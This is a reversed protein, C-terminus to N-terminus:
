KPQRGPLMFWLGLFLIFLSASVLLGLKMSNFIVRAILYVDLCLSVALPWMSLLLLRSALYVFRNSISFPDRQRHIAAPAMVLAVSIVVLVISVFHLIQEGSSLKESFGQSFVAILQFGFLAQIGPLVMRCEELLHTASSDLSLEESKSVKRMTEYFGRKKLRAFVIGSKRHFLAKPM